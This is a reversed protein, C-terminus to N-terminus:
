VRRSFFDETSASKKALRGAHDGFRPMATLSRFIFLFAIMAHGLIQIVSHDAHFM